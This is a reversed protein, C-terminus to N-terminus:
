EAYDEQFIKDVGIRYWTQEFYIVLLDEMWTCWITLRFFWRTGNRFHWLSDRFKWLLHLLSWFNINKCEQLSVFLKSALEILIWYHYKFEIIIYFNNGMIKKKLETFKTTRYEGNIPFDRLIYWWHHKRRSYGLLHFKKEFNGCRIRGDIKGWSIRIADGRRESNEGKKTWDESWDYKGFLM